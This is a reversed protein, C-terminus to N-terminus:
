VVIEGSEVIRCLKANSAQLVHVAYM